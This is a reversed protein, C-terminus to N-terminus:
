RRMEARFGDWVAALAVILVVAVFVWPHAALFGDLNVSAGIM